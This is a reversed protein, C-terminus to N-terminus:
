PAIDPRGSALWAELAMKQVAGTHRKILVGDRYMLLLPVTKIEYESILDERDDVDISHFTIDPYSSSISNITGTLIRCPGCYPTSFKLIHIGTSIDIDLM